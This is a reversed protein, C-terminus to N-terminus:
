VHIDDFDNTFITLTDIRLDVARLPNTKSHCYLDLSPIAFRLYLKLLNTLLSFINKFNFKIKPQLRYISM